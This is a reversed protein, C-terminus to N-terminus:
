KLRYVMGISPQLLQMQYDVSRTNPISQGFTTLSIDSDVTLNARLYSLQGQLAWRGSFDWQLSAGFGYYFGVTVSPSNSVQTSLIAINSSANLNAERLAWAGAEAQLGLSLSKWRVVDAGAVLGMRASQWSSPTININLFDLGGVNLGFLSTDFVAQYSEWQGSVGVNFRSFLPKHWELAVGYGNQARDGALESSANFDGLPRNNTGRIVGYSAKNAASSKLRSSNKGSKSLTYPATASVPVLQDVRRIKREIKKSKDFDIVRDDRLSIRYLDENLIEFIPGDPYQTPIYRTRELGIEVVKANIVELSQTYIVDQGQALLMSGLLFALFLHKM